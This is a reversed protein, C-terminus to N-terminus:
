PGARHQATEHGGGPLVRPWWHAPRSAALPCIESARSVPRLVAALRQAADADAVDIAHWTAIDYPPRAPPPRRCVGVVIGPDGRNSLNRLLATGVNGSAGIIVTRMRM